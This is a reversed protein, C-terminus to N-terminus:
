VKLKEANIFIIIAVAISLAMLIFYGFGGSINFNAISVIMLVTFVIVGFISILAVIGKTIAWLFKILKKIEPYLRKLIVVLMFGFIVIITVQAINLDEFYTTKDKDWIVKSIDEKSKLLEDPVDMTKTGEPIQVEMGNPLTMSKAGSPIEITM